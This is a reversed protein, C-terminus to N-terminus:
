TIKVWRKVVWGLAPSGFQLDLARVVLGCQRGVLASVLFFYPNYSQMYHEPYLLCWSLVVHTGFVLHSVVEM